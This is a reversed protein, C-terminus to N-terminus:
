CQLVVILLSSGFQKLQTNIIETHKVKCTRNTVKVGCNFTAKVCGKFPAGDVSGNSAQCNTTIWTDSLSLTISGTKANALSDVM